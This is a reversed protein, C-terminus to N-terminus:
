GTPDSGSGGLGAGAADGRATDPAARLALMAIDDRPRGEAVAIARAELLGLLADLDGRPGARLWDHLQAPSWRTPAAETLGDTYLLLTGDAGLDVGVETLEPDDVYGLMTGPTGIETTAGGGSLLLPPPHGALCVSLAPAGEGARRIRLLALTCYSAGQARMARNLEALLTPASGLRLASARLTYRILATTAAAKAGHGTVDGIAVLWEGTPRLYVDYFDGGVENLEGAPRYRARIQLGPIEPLPAPLLGAQLTHAIRTHETYLRANDISVAARRALDEALQVDTADFRSPTEGVLSIAGLMRGRAILPVSISSGLGLAQVIERSRPDQLSRALMEETFTDVLQTRGTHMATAAGAPAARSLAEREILQQALVDKAPDAHAVALRYIQGRDDLMSVSCWDAIDPVALRVVRQLTQRYDLSSDLIESAHALFAARHDARVRATIDQVVCSIGAIRGDLHVPTGSVLWRHGAGRAAVAADLEVDTVPHGDALVRRCLAALRAGLDGLVEAVPRGALAAAPESGFAAMADNVRRLCVQGDVFALGTPATAYLAELLALSRTVEAADRRRSLVRACGDAFRQAAALDADDYSRSTSVFSVVGLPTGEVHMPVVISSRLGLEDLLEAEAPSLRVSAIQSMDPYLLPEGSALAALVDGNEGREARYRRRIELILAEQRPDPYGSHVTALEGDAVYYDVACWDAFEPVARQLAAVLAAEHSVAAAFVEGARDAPSDGHLSRADSMGAGYPGAGPWAPRPAM